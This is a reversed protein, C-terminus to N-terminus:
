SARAVVRAADRERRATVALRNMEKIAPREYVAPLFVCECDPQLRATLQRSIAESPNCQPSPTEDRDPGLLRSVYFSVGKEPHVTWWRNVYCHGEAPQTAVDVPVYLFPGRM